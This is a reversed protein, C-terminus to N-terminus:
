GNGSKRKWWTKPRGLVGQRKAVQQAVWYQFHTKVYKGEFVGKPVERPFRALLRGVLDVSNEALENQLYTHAEKITFLYEPSWVVSVRVGPVAPGGTATPKKWRDWLELAISAIVMTSVLVWLGVLVYDAPSTFDM